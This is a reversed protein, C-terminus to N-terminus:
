NEESGSTLLAILARAAPLVVEVDERSIEFAIFPYREEIYFPTAKICVERFQELEPAYIVAEDLLQELNHIRKLKWGCYILYGKLYKEIAQQLHFSADEIDNAELCRNVRNMDAEAKAYWDQYYSSEERHPM